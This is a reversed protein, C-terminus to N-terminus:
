RSFGRRQEASCYITAQIQKIENKLFIKGECRSTSMTPFAKNQSLGIDM